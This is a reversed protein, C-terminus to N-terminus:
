CAAKAGAPGALVSLLLAPRVFVAFIPTVVVLALLTGWAEMGPGGPSGLFALLIFAAAAAISLGRVLGPLASDDADTRIAQQTDTM